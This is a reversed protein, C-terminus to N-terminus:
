ICLLDCSVRSSKLRELVVNIPQRQLRGDIFYTNLYQCPLYRFLLQTFTCSWKRFSPPTLCVWDKNMAHKGPHCLSNRHDVLHPYSTHSINILISIYNAGWTCWYIVAFLQNPFAFILWWLFAHSAWYQSVQTPEISHLKERHKLKVM